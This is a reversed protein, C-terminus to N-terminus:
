VWECTHIHVYIYIYINHIHIHIFVQICICVCTYTGIHILTHTYIYIRIYIYIYVYMYMHIMTYRGQDVRANNQTSTNRKIQTRSLREPQAGLQELDPDDVERFILAASRQPSWGQKAVYGRTFVLM